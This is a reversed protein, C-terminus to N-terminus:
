EKRRNSTNQADFVPRKATESIKPRRGLRVISIGDDTRTPRAGLLFVRRALGVQDLFQYLELREKARLPLSRTNRCIRTEDRYPKEQEYSVRRHFRTKLAYGLASLDRDWLQIKVPRPVVDSTPFKARLAPEWRHSKSAPLLLWLQPAWHPKFRHEQDENFSLDLGGLALKVGSTKLVKKVSDQLPKISLQELQGEPCGPLVISVASVGILGPSEAKLLRKAESVFFRQFARVCYPCAGSLCREEPGCDKLRDAIPGVPQGKRAHKKLFRYRRVWEETAEMTTEANTWQPKGDGFLGIDLVAEVVWPRIDAYDYEPQESM